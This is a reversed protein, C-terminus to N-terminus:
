IVPILSFPTGKNSSEAVDEEDDETDDHDAVGM